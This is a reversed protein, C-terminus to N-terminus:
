IVGNFNFYSHSGSWSLPRPPLQQARLGLARTMTRAWSGSMNITNLGKLDSVRKISVRSDWALYCLFDLSHYHSVWRVTGERICVAGMLYMLALTAVHKSQWM